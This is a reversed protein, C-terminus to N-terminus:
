ATAELLKQNIRTQVELYYMTEADTLEEEGWAEFDAAMESYQSMFSAYDALLTLDSGDSEAYKQMFACYEDFFAEYSDMAQQFEPRIGAPDAAPTESASAEETQEMGTEAAESEAETEPESQVPEEPARVTASMRGDEEYYSLNVSYGDASDATYYGDSSSANETYGQEKCAEVYANFQELSMGYADFMFTDEDDVGAEVIETEPKPIQNGLDTATWQYAKEIENDLTYKDTRFDYNVTYIEGDAVYRVVAMDPEVLEYHGMDKVYYAGSYYYCHINSVSGGPAVARESETHLSIAQGRTQEMVSEDLDFAQQVETYFAEKEEDSIGEKETFIIKLGAITFPSQNTYGMLVYREEDVIGEEVTWVIDEMSFEPRSEETATSVAEETSSATSEAAAEEKPAGCATLAALAAALCVALMKRM